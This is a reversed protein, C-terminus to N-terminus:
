SQITAIIFHYLNKFLFLFLIHHFINLSETLALNYTLSSMAPTVKRYGSWIWLYNLKVDPPVGHSQHSRLKYRIKFFTSFLELHILKCYTLISILLGTGKLIIIVNPGRVVEPDLGSINTKIGISFRCRFMNYNTPSYTKMRGGSINIIIIWTPLYIIDPILLTFM